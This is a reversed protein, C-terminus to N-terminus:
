AVLDYWHMDELTGPHYTQHISHLEHWNHDGSDKASISFSFGPHYGSGMGSTTPYRRTVTLAVGFRQTAMYSLIDNPAVGRYRPANEELFANLYVVAEKLLGAAGPTNAAAEPMAIKKHFVTLGRVQQVPTLGPWLLPQAEELAHIAVIRIVRGQVESEWCVATGQADSDRRWAPHAPLGYETMQLSLSDKRSVPYGGHRAVYMPEAKLPFMNLLYTMEGPAVQLEITATKPTVKCMVVRDLMEATLYMSAFNVERRLQELLEQTSKFSQMLTSM